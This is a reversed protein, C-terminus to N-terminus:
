RIMVQWDSNDCHPILAVFHGGFIEWAPAWIVLLENLFHSFSLSFNKELMDSYVWSCEVAYIKKERHLVRLKSAQVIFIYETNIIIETRELRM